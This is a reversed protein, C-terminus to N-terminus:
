QNNTPPEAQAPRIQINQATVSGDQNTTGNITVQQGNALDAAAGSESKMVSTSDSFFVIKSSGDPLKLTISKDDKAIIQGSVFGGGSARNSRQGTGQAGQGNASMQQLRAQREQPSLNAFAAASLNSASNKSKDYQMGGYFAGAGVILVIIIVPLIKKM